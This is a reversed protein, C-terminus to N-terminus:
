LAPSTEIIKFILEKFDHWFLLANDDMGEIKDDSFEKWEQILHRECGIQLIDKTYAISYLHIQMSKIERMNGVVGKLNAGRLNAGRLDAGKLSAGYLYTGRLDAGHLDAEYLDAGRLSARKLNARELNAGYLNAKQLDAEYLNAKQLSAGYLNARAGEKDGMLWRRHLRLINDLKLKKM